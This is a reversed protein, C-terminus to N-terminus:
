RLSHTHNLNLGVWVGAMNPNQSFAAPVLKQIVRYKTNLNDLKYYLTLCNWLAVCFVNSLCVFFSKHSKHVQSHKVHKLTTSVSCLINIPCTSNKGIYDSVNILKKMCQKDYDIKGNTKALCIKTFIVFHMYKVCRHCWSNDYELADKNNM